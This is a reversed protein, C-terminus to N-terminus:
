MRTLGSSRATELFFLGATIKTIGVGRPAASRRLKDDSQGEGSALGEGRSGTCTSQSSRISIAQGEAARSM